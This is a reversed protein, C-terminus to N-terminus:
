YISLVTRFSDDFIVHFQPSIHGTDTYLILPIDSSHNPNFGFFYGAVLGHSINQSNIVKKFCPICSTSLVVGCTFINSSTVPSNIEMSSILLCSTRLIQCTITLIPPMVLLWQCFTQVLAMKGSFICTFCWPVPWTLCRPYQGNMQVMKNHVNTDCYLIHQDNECIHQVFRNKRQLFM